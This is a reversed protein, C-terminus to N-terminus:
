SLTITRVEIRTSSSFFLASTKERYFALCSDYRTALLLSFVKSHQGQIQTVVIPLLTLLVHTPHLSPPLFTKSFRGAPKQPSVTGFVFTFIATYLAPNACPHSGEEASRKEPVPLNGTGFLPPTERFPRTLLRGFFFDPPQESKQADEM